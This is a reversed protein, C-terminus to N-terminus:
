PLESLRQLLAEAESRSAGVRTRFEWDEIAEPGNCIENIANSVIVVENTTLELVAADARKEIIKM